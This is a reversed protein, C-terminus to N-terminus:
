NKNKNEEPLQFRIRWSQDIHAGRGKCGRNTQSGGEERRIEMNCVSGKHINKASIFSPLKRVRCCHNVEWGSKRERSEMVLELVRGILM